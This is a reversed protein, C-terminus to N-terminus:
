SDSTLNPKVLNQGLWIGGRLCCPKLIDQRVRAVRASMVRATIVDPAFSLLLSLKTGLILLPEFGEFDKLGLV